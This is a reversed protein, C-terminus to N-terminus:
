SRADCELGRLSDGVSDSKGTAGPTPSPQAVAESKQLADRFDGLVASVGKGFHHRLLHSLGNTLPSAFHQFAAAHRLVVGAVCRLKQGVLGDLGVSPPAVDAELREPDNQGDHREVEWEPLHKPCGNPDAAARARVLPAPSIVRLTSSVRL